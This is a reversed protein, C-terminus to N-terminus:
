GAIVQTLEPIVAMRRIQAKRTGSLHPYILGLVRQLDDRRCVQYVYFPKRQAKYPGYPGYIRGAELLVELQKLLTQDTNTVSIRCRWRAGRKQTHFCGEGELIGVVWGLQFRTM